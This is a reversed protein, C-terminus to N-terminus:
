SVQSVSQFRSGAAAVALTIAGATAILLGPGVLDALAGGVFILPLWSLNTLAIRAGFVRARTAAATKEQLITLTPVYFAVNAAGLAGYLALTVPFSTSLAILVLLAGTAAYGWILFRGKGVRDVYRPVLGSGVVAGTAIAAESIGYQVAGLAPDNGAFRQIMLAPTLGNIIPNSIQAAVSFVTNAWLVASQKLLHLGEVAESLLRRWTLRHGTEVIAVRSLLMASLAFTAADVFFAATGVTAVLLGGAIGGFIEVARDTAYVFSNSRPLLKDEVLSPIIAVRAPNFVASCIGSVLVAAFIIPLPAGFSILVPVAGIAIARLIDSRLMVTRHGIADAIAGGFFSFLATPITAILVAIATALASQTERYTVFTLAIPTIPDGFRSIMQGAWFFAFNPSRLSTARRTDAPPQLWMFPILFGGIANLFDGFSLVSKLPSVPIVDSLFQLRSGSALVVHLGDNPMPAGVAAASISDYPMGDNAAVVLLNLGTGAAILLAGPIRWNWVAVLAVGLLSAVYVVLPSSNPLVVYGVLRAGLAFLLVPWLRLNFYALRRWDGGFAIGAIVGVFVGSALM